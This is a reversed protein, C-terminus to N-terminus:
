AFTLDLLRFRGAVQGFIRLEFTKDIPHRLQFLLERLADIICFL